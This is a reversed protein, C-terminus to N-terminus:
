AGTFVGGEGEGRECWVSLAMATLLAMLPEAPMRYRPVAVVSMAGGVLVAGVCLFLLWAMARHRGRFLQPAALMTGLWFVATLALHLGSHLIAVVGWSELARRAKELFGGVGHWIGGTTPRGVLRPVSWRDPLFATAVVAQAQHRAQIWPHEMVYARASAKKAELIERLSAGAPLTAMVRRERADIAERFDGAEGRRVMIKAASHDFLLYSQTNPTFVGYLRYTVWSAGMWAGVMVLGYLGGLALRRGWGVGWGLIWLVVAPALVITSARTWFAMALCSASVLTLWISGRDRAVMLVNLAGLAM